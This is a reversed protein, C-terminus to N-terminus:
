ETGSVNARSKERIERFEATKSWQPWERGNALRAGVEYFLRLDATAGTLDWVSPDYEDQPTHYRKETYAHARAVTNGGQTGSEAYLMPVGHKAFSFHDSRFYGGKEPASEPRVVRGHRRAAAVLYDEMESLNHGVVELDHPHSFPLMADINIGGVTRNLPYVPHEAYWKSGLLGSEEATVALFVVSRRPPEPQAQFARALELLAAVGTANDVAGNFIHDGPLSPKTGLHDWHASYLVSETPAERGPIRAIVNHSELRHLQSHITVSAQLPMPRAHFGSHAASAKLTDLDMGALQFMRRAADLTVWGEVKCRDMHRNTEQLEFQEGSWSGSVVDWPYGAAAKEHIILAGAAGQRAAEEFKYTWRGYYTMAKGRFLGPDRTAFGPDNVLMVVTKGRVDIGAYDNWGYEPAVIGYGVFVLDSADLSVTETERQTWAMMQQQYALDLRGDPGAIGLTMAPNATSSVLPVKQFYSDGNGPELGLRRFQDRLYHITRSEGATGPARGGFADSALVKVHVAMDAASISAEAPSQGAPQTACASLAALCIIAVLRRIPVTLKGSVLRNPESTIM